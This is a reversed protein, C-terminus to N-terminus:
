GGVVKGVRERELRVAKQKFFANGTDFGASVYGGKSGDDYLERYLVAGSFSTWELSVVTKRGAVVQTM